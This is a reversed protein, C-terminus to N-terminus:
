LYPKGESKLEIYQDFTLANKPKYTEKNYNLIYVHGTTIVKFNERGSHPTSLAYGHYAIRCVRGDIDKGIRYGQNDIVAFENDILTNM